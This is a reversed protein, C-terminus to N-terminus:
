ARRRVCEADTSDYLPRHARDVVMFDEIGYEEAFKIANEVYVFRRAWDFAWRDKWMPVPYKSDASAVGHLLEGTKCKAIYFYRKPKQERYTM